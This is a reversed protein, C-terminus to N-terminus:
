SVTATALDITSRYLQVPVTSERSTHTTAVTCSLVVADDALTQLNAAAAACTHLPSRPSFADGRLLPLVYERPSPGTPKQTRSVCRTVSRDGLRPHNALTQLYTSSPGGRLTRSDRLLAGM